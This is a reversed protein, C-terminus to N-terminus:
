RVTGFESLVEDIGAVATGLKGVVIGAATNAFRLMQENTFGAAMALACASIVTDGAGSVDYVDREAAGRNISSGDGFYLTMGHESKTVLLSEPYVWARSGFRGSP